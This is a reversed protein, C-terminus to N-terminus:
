GLLGPFIVAQPGIERFRESPQMRFEHAKRAAAPHLAIIKRVHIMPLVGNPVNIRAGRKPIDPAVIGRVPQTKVFIELEGFIEARLREEADINAHRM